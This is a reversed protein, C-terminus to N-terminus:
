VKKRRRALGMGALGIGLLALTGPEPVTSTNYCSLDPCTLVGVGLAFDSFVGNTWETWGVLNTITGGVGGSWGIVDLRLLGIPDGTFFNQLTGTGTM